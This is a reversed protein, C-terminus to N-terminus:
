GYDLINIRLWTSSHPIKFEVILDKKKLSGWKRMLNDFFKEINVYYGDELLRSIKKSYYKRPRKDLLEAIMTSIYFSKEDLRNDIIIDKVSTKGRYVDYILDNLNEIPHLDDTIIFMHNKVMEIMNVGYYNDHNNM